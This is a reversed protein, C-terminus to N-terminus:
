SLNSATRQRVKQGISVLKPRLLRRLVDRLIRILQIENRLVVLLASAVLLGNISPRFYVHPSTVTHRGGRALIRGTCARRLLEYIGVFHLRRAKRGDGAVRIRLVQLGDDIGRRSI